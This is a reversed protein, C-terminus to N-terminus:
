RTAGAGCRRGCRHARGAAGPDARGAAMPVPGRLAGPRRSVAPGAGEGPVEPLDGGPRAARPSEAAVAAGPVPDAGQRAHRGADHRHVAGPRRAHRVPDDGPRLRRDGDLGRGARREDARAGHVLADRGPRGVADARLRRRDAQGPRLRHRPGAGARRDPHQGAEPRPPPHRAPPRSPDGRRHRRGATGHRPPRRRVRGTAQGPQERRDAEHQLLAPRPPQRGRLDARHASPRPTRGGRGRQPVAGAGVRHRLEGVPGAQAGGLPQPGGPAGRVRRGHRGSGAPAPSRLRGVKLDRYEVDGLGGRGGGRRIEVEPDVPRTEGDPDVPDM